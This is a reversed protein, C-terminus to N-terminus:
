GDRADWDARYEEYNGGITMIYLRLDCRPGNYRITRHNDVPPRRRTGKRSLFPVSFLKLEVRIRHNIHGKRRFPTSHM